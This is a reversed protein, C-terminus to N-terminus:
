QEMNVHTASVIRGTFNIQEDSGIRTFKKSELVRLLKAQHILPLEAVEDFFLTGGNAQAFFGHHRKDAGTFAGKEHGFLLSEFLSEPIASCNVPVLSGTSKSLIHIANAFLEKGTGTDGNLLVPRDSPAIKRVQAALRHMAPANSIIGPLMPSEEQQEKDYASLM